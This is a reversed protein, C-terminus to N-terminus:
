EPLDHEKFYEVIAQKMLEHQQAPKLNPLKATPKWHPWGEADMGEYEYYGFRSLLRCIAVHMVDVKQDKSFQKYGKGLEQIGILFLVGQLDMEYGFQEELKKLVKNWEREFEVDM